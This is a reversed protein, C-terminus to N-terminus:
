ECKMFLPGRTTGTFFRTDEDGAPEYGGLCRGVGYKEAVTVAIPHLVDIMDKMVMGTDEAMDWMFLVDHDEQCDWRYLHISGTSIHLTERHLHVPFLAVTCVKQDSFFPPLKSEEDETFQGKGLFELVLNRIVGLKVREFFIEALYGM